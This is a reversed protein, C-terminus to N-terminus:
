NVSDHQPFLFSEDVRNSSRRLATCTLSPTHILRFIPNHQLKFILPKIIDENHICPTQHSTTPNSVVFHWRQSRSFVKDIPLPSNSFNINEPISNHILYVHKELPVVKERELSSTEFLLNVAHVTSLM